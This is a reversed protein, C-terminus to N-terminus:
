SLCIMVPLILWICIHVFKKGTQECQAGFCQCLLMTKCGSNTESELGRNPSLFFFLCYKWNNFRLRFHWTLVWVYLVYWVLLLCRQPLLLSSQEFSGAHQPVCKKKRAGCTEGAKNEQQLLLLACCLANEQRRMPNRRHMHLNSRLATYM